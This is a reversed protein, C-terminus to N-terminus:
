LFSRSVCARVCACVHHLNYDGAPVGAPLYSIVCSHNLALSILLEAVLAAEIQFFLHILRDTVPHIFWGGRGPKNRASLLSRERLKDAVAPRCSTARKQPIVPIDAGNAM